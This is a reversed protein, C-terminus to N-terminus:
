RGRQSYIVFPDAKLVVLSKLSAAFNIINRDKKMNCILLSTMDIPCNECPLTANLATLLEETIRFNGDKDKSDRIINIKALKHAIVISLAIDNKVNNVAFDAFLRTKNIALGGYELAKKM